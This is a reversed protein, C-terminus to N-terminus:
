TMCKWTPSGGYDRLAAASESWDRCADLRAVDTDGREADHPIICEMCWYTITSRSMEVVRQRTDHGCIPCRRVCLRSPLHTAVM